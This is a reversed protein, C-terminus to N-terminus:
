SYVGGADCHWIEVVANSVAAAKGDVSCNTMDQVRLALQLNTGPRDERIDSRISHVDFWYPGQTEEVGMVCQPAQDLLATVADTGAATTSPATATSSGTGTCAAVLGGLTVTGGLALARRRSM